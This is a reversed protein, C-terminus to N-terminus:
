DPRPANEYDKIRDRKTRQYLENLKDEAKMLNHVEILNGGKDSIEYFKYPLDNSKKEDELEREELIDADVLKEIHNRITAESKDPIMYDLEGMSISQKPHGIILELIKLRTEQLMLSLDQATSRDGSEEISM